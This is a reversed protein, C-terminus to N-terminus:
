ICLEESLLSLLSLSLFFSNSILRKSLSNEQIRSKIIYLSGRFVFCVSYGTYNIRSQLIGSCVPFRVGKCVAMGHYADFSFEQSTQQVANSSRAGTTCVFLQVSLAMLSERRFSSISAMAARFYYLPLICDSFLRINWILCFWLCNVHRM